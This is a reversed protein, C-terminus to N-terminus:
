IIVYLTLKINQPTTPLLEGPQWVRDDDFIDSSQQGHDGM